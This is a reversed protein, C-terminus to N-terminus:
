VEWSRRILHLWAVSNQGILYLCFYCTAPRTDHAKGRGKEDRGGDRHGGNNGALSDLLRSSTAKSLCESLPPMPNTFTSSLPLRLLPSQRHHRAAPMPPTIPSSTPPACKTEIPVKSSNEGGWPAASWIAWIAKIGEQLRHRLKSKSSHCGISSLVNEKRGFTCM